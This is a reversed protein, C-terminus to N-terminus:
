NVAIKVFRPGVGSVAELAVGFVQYGIGALRLVGPDVVRLFDGVDVVAADELIGLVIDGTRCHRAMVRDGDNYERPAVITNGDYTNEIAFITQSTGTAPGYTGDAELQMVMGPIIPGAAGVIGEVYPSSSSVDLQITNNDVYAM